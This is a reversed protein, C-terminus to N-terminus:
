RRSRLMQWAEAFLLFAALLSLVLLLAPAGPNALTALALWVSLGMVFYIVRVNERAAGVVAVARAPASPADRFRARGPSSPAVVVTVDGATLEAPEDEVPPQPEPQNLWEQRRVQFDNIAQAVILLAAILAPVRLWGSTETATQDVLGLLAGFAMLVAPEILSLVRSMPAPQVAPRPRRRRQWWGRGRGTRAAAPRDPGPYGGATMEVPAGPAGGHDDDPDLRRGLQRALQQDLWSVGVVSEEPRRADQSM